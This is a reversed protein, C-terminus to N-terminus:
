RVLLLTGRVVGTGLRLRVFYVGAGADRDRVGRGDWSVAHPGAPSWGEYLMRVRRGTIDTVDLRVPGAESQDWAIRGPARFPNAFWVRGRGPSPPPPVATGELDWALTPDTDADFGPMVDVAPPDRPIAPGRGHALDLGKELGLLDFSGLLAGDTTRFGYVRAPTLGAAITPVALLRGVPMNPVAEWRLQAVDGSPDEEPIMVFQQGPDSKKFLGLDVDWEFGSFTVGPNLTELSSAAAVNPPLALRLVDADSGDATSVPVFLAAEPDFPRATIPDVSRVFGTVPAGYLASLIRGDNDMTLLGAGAAGEMPILVIGPKWLLPEVGVEFGRVTTGPNLIPDEAHGIIHGNVLNVVLVNADGTVEDEVPVVVRHPQTGGLDCLRMFDVGEEYGNLPPATSGGSSSYKWQAVGAGNTMYLDATGAGEVPILIRQEPFAVGCEVIPASKLVMIDVDREYGPFALPIAGGANTAKVSTHGTFLPPEFHPDFDILLLDSGGAGTVPLATRVCCGPVEYASPDVADVLGPMWDAFEAVDCLALATNSLLRCSGFEGDGDLDSDEADADIALFGRQTGDESELAFVALMPGTYAAWTGDVDPRFGLSGLDIGVEEIFTGDGFLRLCLIGAASGDPSEHPIFVAYGDLDPNHQAVIFPDVAHEFGLLPRVLRPTVFEGSAPNLALIEVQPPNLGSEDQECVVVFGGNPAVVLDVDDQFGLVSYTVATRAEDAPAPTVILSLLLGCAALCRAPRFPARVRTRTVACDCPM